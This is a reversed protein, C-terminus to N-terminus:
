AEGMGASAEAKPPNSNWYSALISSSFGMIPGCVATALGVTAIKGMVKAIGSVLGANQTGTTISITRCDFESLKFLRALWYGFFFGFLIMLFVVIILELGINLISDRGAAMIIAVIFAVGIMSVLPMSDDLWKAKGHLFKNFILGAGIPIFVMKVIGWMMEMVNIEIFGGALVKMLLPILFPALLTTIATITIALVVNAKALYCMVSATVSTPACGLLIIGASIEAPFNTFTALTFGLLPMITYQSIVGVIVSKPSKALAIFDKLGMSCGMGFMIVQILPTILTAFEFGNYEKFYQPYYLSTAVVALISTTFTLGRLVPFGRFSIALLLLFAIVFPGADAINGNFAMYMAILLCLISIGMLLRPVSNKNM